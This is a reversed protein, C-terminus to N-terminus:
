QTRGGPAVPCPPCGLDCPNGVTSGAGQSTLRATRDILRQRREPEPKLFRIPRPHRGRSIRTGRRIGARSAARLASGLARHSGPQVRPQGQPRIPPPTESREANRTAAARHSRGSRAAAVHEQPQRHAPGVRLGSYSSQPALRSGPIPRFRHRCPPSRRSRRTMPDRHVAEKSREGVGDRSYGAATGGKQHAYGRDHDPRKLGARRNKRFM